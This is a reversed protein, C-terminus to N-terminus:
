HLEDGRVERLVINFEPLDDVNVSDSLYVCAVYMGAGHLLELYMNAIKVYRRKTFEDM